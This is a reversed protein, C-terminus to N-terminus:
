SNLLNITVSWQYYRLTVGFRNESRSTGKGWRAIRIRARRLLARITCVRKEIPQLTLTRCLESIKAPSRSLLAPLTANPPLSFSSDFVQARTKEPPYDRETRLPPYHRRRWERVRCFPFNVASWTVVPDVFRAQHRQLFFLCCSHSVRM